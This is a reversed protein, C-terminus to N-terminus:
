EAALTLTDSDCSYSRDDQWPEGALSVLRVRTNNCTSIVTTATYRLNFGLLIEDEDFPYHWNVSEVTFSPTPEETASSATDSDAVPDDAHLTGFTLVSLILMALTLTKM